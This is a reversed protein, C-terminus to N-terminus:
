FLLLHELLRHAAEDLVFTGCGTQALDEVGIGLVHRREPAPECLHADRAERDGFLVAAGSEFHELQREDGLHEAFGCKGPREETM